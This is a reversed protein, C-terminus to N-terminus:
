GARYYYHYGGGTSASTEHVVDPIAAGFGGSANRKLGLMVQFRYSLSRFRSPKKVTIPEPGSFGDCILIKLGKDQYRRLIHSLDTEVKGARLIVTKIGKSILYDASPMDQPFVCWRNDFTGPGRFSDNMRNSDLLFVPPADPLLTLLELERVGHYVAAELNIVDVAMRSAHGGSVGNYLPVPRYGLRALALGEQVSQQSPLDAIIATDAHAGNIWPLDPVILKDFSAGFMNTFRTATSIKAFLVPKAWETWRENAPAWAKFTEINENM